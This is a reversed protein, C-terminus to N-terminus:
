DKALKSVHVYKGEAWRTGCIYDWFGWYLGYNVCEYDHHKIHDNLDLSRGDHAAIAYVSTSFGFIQGAIPHMPVLFSILAHGIPGQIIAEIWHVADQAFATCDEIFQHHILHIHKWFNIPKRLHILRHTWYFWTDYIFMYSFLNKLFEVINYEHEDYYRYYRTLPDLYFMYLLALLVCLIIAQSSLKIQKYMSETREKTKAAPNSYEFLTSILMYSMLHSFTAGCNIIFTDTLTEFPIIRRIIDPKAQVIWSLTALIFLILTNKSFM